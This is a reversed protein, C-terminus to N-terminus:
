LVNFFALLNTKAKCFYYFVKFDRIKCFNICETASTVNIAFEDIEFLESLKSFSTCFYNTIPAECIQIEEDAEHRFELSHNQFILHPVLDGKFQDYTLLSNQKRQWVMPMHFWTTLEGSFDM